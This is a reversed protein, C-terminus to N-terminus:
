RGLLESPFQGASSAPSREGHEVKAISLHRSGGPTEWTVEAGVSYGLLAVGVPALISIRNAAPDADNPMTVTYEEVEGSDLDRISVKSYLAVVDAPLASADLVKARGLETELNRLGLSKIGSANLEHILKKLRDYDKRGVYIPKSNM